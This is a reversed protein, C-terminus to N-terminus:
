TKLHNSALPDVKVQVAESYKDLPNWLNHISKGSMFYLVDPPTRTELKAYGLSIKIKVLAEIVPICLSNVNM